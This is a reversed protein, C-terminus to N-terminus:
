NKLTHTMRTYQKSTFDNMKAHVFVYKQTHLKEAFDKSDIVLKAKYKHTQEEVAYLCLAAERDMGNKVAANVTSKRM